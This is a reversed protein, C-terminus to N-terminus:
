LPLIGTPSRSGRWHWSSCSRTMSTHCRHFHYQLSGGVRWGTYLPRTSQLLKRLLSTRVMRPAVYLLESCIVTIYGSIVSWHGTV